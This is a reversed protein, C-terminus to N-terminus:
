KAILTIQLAFAVLIALGALLALVILNRTSMPAGGASRGHLFAAMNQM